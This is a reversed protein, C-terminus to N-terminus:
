RPRIINLVYQLASLDYSMLAALKRGAGILFPGEAEPPYAKAAQRLCAGLLDPAISQGNKLILRVFDLNQTFTQVEPEACLHVSDLTLPPRPPLSYFLRGEHAYGLNLVDIEIPVLRNERQDRLTSEARNNAMILQRVLPDDDVRIATIVGLVTGAGNQGTTKVFAGFTPHLLEHSRTGCTFGETSARLVRGIEIM